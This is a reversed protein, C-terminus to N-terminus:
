EVAKGLRQWRITPFGDFSLWIRTARGVINEAPVYGLESQFRSAASNDRNDGMFFYFGPPVVFLGQPAFTADQAPLAAIQPNDHCVLQDRRDNCGRYIRDITSACYM